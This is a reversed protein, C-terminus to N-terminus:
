PKKGGRVPTGKIRMCLGDSFVLFNKMAVFEPNELATRNVLKKYLNEFGDVDMPKLCYEGMMESQAIQKDAAPVDAVDMNFEAYDFEGLRITVCSGLVFLCLMLVVSVMRMM